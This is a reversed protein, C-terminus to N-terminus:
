KSTKKKKVVVIIVALVVVAAAVAIIWILANSEDTEEVTKTVETEPEQTPEVATEDALPEEYSVVYNEADTVVIWVDKGTEVSIDTTQVTGDSGNIIISNVWNPVDYTLWGNGDDALPEGPWTSFVNTGDPASWAWICPAAWDEPAKAHVTIKEAELAPDTYSVEYSLDDAITIWVDVGADVSIDETQVSGENANVIISNIFNPASAKAWGSDMMKMEAGPWTSFANTGDPASWAWLGLTEWGAPAKAYVTITEVYEPADGQTLAETSVEVTEPDSIVLWTDGSVPMDSTQVGGENANVIINTAWVPLYCYYWGENAEDATMEGGPWADFANTGDDSWAWVCPASWDEPVQAYLLVMEVYEPTEGETLADYTVEASEASEISVWCSGEIPMDSTQVSGENANIIINTAWTPVWIYYWGENNEDALMAGGPWEDFANDGNDAWAWVCPNEWDSPVQAYIFQMEEDDALGVAQIAITMLLVAAIVFFIKKNKMVDEKVINVHLSIFM